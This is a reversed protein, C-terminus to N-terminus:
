DLKPGNFHDWITDPDESMLDTDDECNEDDPSEVITDDIWLANNSNLRNIEDEKVHGSYLSATVWYERAGIWVDVVATAPKGNYTTHKWYQGDPSVEGQWEM